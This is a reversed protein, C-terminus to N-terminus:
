DRLHDGLFAILAEVRAPRLPSPPTLLHLGIQAPRWHPLIEVV